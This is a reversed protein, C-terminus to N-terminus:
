AELNKDEYLMVHDVGPYCTKGLFRELFYYKTRIEQLDHPENSVIGVIIDFGRAHEIWDHSHFDYFDHPFSNREFFRCYKTWRPFEDYDRVIGIRPKSIHAPWDITVIEANEIKDRDDVYGPEAVPLYQRLRFYWPSAQLRKIIRVNKISELMLCRLMRKEHGPRQGSSRRLEPQEEVM